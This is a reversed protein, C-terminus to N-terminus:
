ANVVAAGHWGIMYLDARAFFLFCAAMGCFSAAVYECVGALVGLDSRRDVQDADVCSEPKDEKLVVAGFCDVTRALLIVELLAKRACPDSHLALWIYTDGTSRWTYPPVGSVDCFKSFFHIYSEPATRKLSTVSVPCFGISHQVIHILTSRQM